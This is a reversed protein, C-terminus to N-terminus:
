AGPAGTRRSRTRAPPITAACRAAVTFCRSRRDCRWDKLAAIAQQDLGHAEDLSKVIQVDDVTGDALVVAGLTVKGEVRLLMAEPTDSPRTTTLPVPPSV